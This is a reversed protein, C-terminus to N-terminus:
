PSKELVAQLKQASGAQAAQQETFPYERQGRGIMWKRKEDQRGAEVVTGEPFDLKFIAQDIAQNFEASILTASTAFTIGDAKETSRWQTPVVLGDERRTNTVRLDDLVSEDRFQAFRQVSHDLQPDLWLAYLITSQRTKLTHRLVVTPQGELVKTSVIVKPKFMENGFVEPYAFARFHWLLPSKELTGASHLQNKWLFGQQPFREGAVTLFLKTAVGDFVLVRPVLGFQLQRPIWGPRNNDLRLKTGDCRFRAQWEFTAPLKAYMPSGDNSGFPDQLENPDLKKGARTLTTTSKFTLDITTFWKARQEIETKAKALLDESRAVGTAIGLCMLTILSISGVSHINLHRRSRNMACTHIM